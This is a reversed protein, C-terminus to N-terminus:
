ASFQFIVLNRSDTPKKTKKENFAQEAFSLAQKLMVQILNFLFFRTKKFTIKEALEM